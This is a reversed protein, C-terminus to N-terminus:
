MLVNNSGDVFDSVFKPRVNVFQQCAAARFKFLKAFLIPFKPAKDFVNPSVARYVRAISKASHM